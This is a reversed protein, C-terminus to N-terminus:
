PSLGLDEASRAPAICDVGMDANKDLVKCENSM